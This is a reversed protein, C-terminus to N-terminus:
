SDEDSKKKNASGHTRRHSIEWQWRTGSIKGSKAAKENCCGLIHVEHIRASEKTAADWPVKKSRLAGLIFSPRHENRAIVTFSFDHRNLNHRGKVQQCVCTFLSPRIHQGGRLITPLVICACMSLQLTPMECRIEDHIIGIVLVLVGTRLLVPWTGAHM